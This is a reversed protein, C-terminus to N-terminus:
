QPKYKGGESALFDPNKEKIQCFLNTMNDLTELLFVNLIPFLWRTIYFFIYKWTFNFFTDYDQSRALSRPFNLQLEYEM